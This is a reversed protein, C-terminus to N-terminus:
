AARAAEREQKRRRGEAKIAEIDLPAGEGRDLQEIGIQVEQRLRELRFQRFENREQLLRLADHVVEGPTSYTGAEIQQDVFQQLGPPLVINM